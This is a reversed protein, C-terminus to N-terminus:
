YFICGFIILFDVRKLKIDVIGFVQRIQSFAYEIFVSDLRCLSMLAKWIPLCQNNERNKTSSQNARQADRVWNM